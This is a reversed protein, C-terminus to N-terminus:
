RPRSEETVPNNKVSQPRLTIQIENENRGRKIAMQLCIIPILFVIISLDFAILAIM